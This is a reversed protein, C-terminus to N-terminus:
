LNIGLKAMLARAAEQEEESLNGLNNKIEGVSVKPAAPARVSWNGAVLGDWVKTIAEEADKGSVGAAADGLKHGLGFPVLNKQIQEPLASADFRMEGKEGGIVTIIVQTGEIGKTLKKPRKAAAEAAVEAGEVVEAVENGKTVATNEEMNTGEQTTQAAQDRRAM